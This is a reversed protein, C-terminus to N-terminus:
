VSLEDEVAGPEKFRKQKRGVKVKTTNIEGEEVPTTKEEKADVEGVPTSVDVDQEKSPEEKRTVKVKQVFQKQLDAIEQQIEEDSKGQISGEVEINMATVGFLTNKLEQVKEMNPMDTNLTREIYEDIAAIDEDSIDQGIEKKKEFNARLKDHEQRIQEVTTVYEDTSSEAEQHKKHGEVEQIQEDIQDLSLRGDLSDYDTAIEEKAGSISERVVGDSKYGEATKHLIEEVAGLDKTRGHLIERGADLKEQKVEVQESLPKPVEFKEINDQKIKPLLQTIEAVEKRHFIRDRLRPQLGYGAFWTCNQLVQTTKEDLAHKGQIYGIDSKIIRQLRLDDAVSQLKEGRKDAKHSRSSIQNSIQKQETKLKDLNKTLKDYKAKRLPKVTKGDKKLCKKVDKEVTKINKNLRNMTKKYALALGINNANVEIKGDKAKLVSTSGTTAFNDIRHQLRAMADNFQLDTLKSRKIQLQKLESKIAKAEKKRNFETKDMKSALLDVTKNSTKVISGIGNRVIAELFTYGTALAAYAGCGVLFAAFVPYLPPFAFGGILFIKTTNGMLGLVKKNRNKIAKGMKFKPGGKLKGDKETLAGNNYATFRLTNNAYDPFEAEDSYIYRTKDPALKVFEGNLYIDNVEYKGTKYDKVFQEFHEKKDSVEEGVEQAFERSIIECNEVKANSSTTQMIHCKSSNYDCRKVKRYTQVDFMKKAKNKEFYEKDVCVWKGPDGLTKVLYKDFDNNAANDAVITYCIPQVSELEKIYRGKLDPNAECDEIRLYTEDTAVKETQEQYIRHTEYRLAKQEYTIPETAVLEEGDMFYIPEGLKIADEIPDGNEDELNIHEGNKDLIDDKHIMVVDGNVRIALYDGANNVHYNKTRVYSVSRKKGSEDLEEKIVYRQMSYTKPLDEVKYTVTGDHEVNYTKKQMVEVDLSEQAIPTDFYFGRDTYIEEIVDGNADYITLTSLDVNNNIAERVSKEDKGEFYILDDLDHFEWSKDEAKAYLYQVDDNIGKQISPASDDIYLPLPRVPLTRKLGYPIEIEKGNQFVKINDVDEVKEEGTAKNITRRTVPLRIKTKHTPNLEITDFTNPIELTDVLLPDLSENGVVQERASADFFVNNKAMEARFDELSTIKRTKTIEIGESSIEKVGIYLSTLARYGKDSDQIYINDLLTTNEESKKLEVLKHKLVQM